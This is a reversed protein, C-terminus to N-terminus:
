KSCMSFVLLVHEFCIIVLSTWGSTGKPTALQDTIAGREERVPAAPFPVQNDSSPVSPTGAVVQTAADADLVYNGFLIQLDRPSSSAARAQGPSGIFFASRVVDGADPEILAKDESDGRAQFEVRVKDSVSLAHDTDQRSIVSTLLCKQPSAASNEMDGGSGRCLVKGGRREGCYDAAGRIQHQADGDTSLVDKAFPPAENEREQEPLDAAHDIGSVCVDTSEVKESVTSVSSSRSSAAFFPVEATHSQSSGTALTAVTAQLTGTKEILSCRPIRLTTM